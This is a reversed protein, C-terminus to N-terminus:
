FVMQEKAEPNWSRYRSKHGEGVWGKLSSSLIASSNVPESAELSPSAVGTAERSGLGTWSDEWDGYEWAGIRNFSRNEIFKGIAIPKYRSWPEM